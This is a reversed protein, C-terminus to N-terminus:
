DPDCLFYDKTIKVIGICDQAFAELFPLQPHFQVPKFFASHFVVTAAWPEFTMKRVKVLIEKKDM